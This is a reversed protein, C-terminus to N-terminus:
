SSTNPGDTEREKHEAHDSCCKCRNFKKRLWHVGKIAGTLGLSLLFAEIWGGCICALYM